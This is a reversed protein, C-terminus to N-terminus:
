LSVSKERTISPLFGASTQGTISSRIVCRWIMSGRRYLATMRWSCAHVMARGEPRANKGQKVRDGTHPRTYRHGIALGALMVFACAEVGVFM